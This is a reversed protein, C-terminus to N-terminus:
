ASLTWISVRTRCRSPMHFGARLIPVLPTCIPATRCGELSLLLTGCQHKGRVETSIRGPVVKLMEAGINVALIDAVDAFSLHVPDLDPPRCNPIRSYVRVMYLSQMGPIFARHQYGPLIVLYTEVSYKRSHPRTPDSASLVGKRSQALAEALLHAYEPNQM